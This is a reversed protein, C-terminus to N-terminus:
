TEVLRLLNGSIFKVKLSSFKLKLGRSPEMHLLCFNWPHNNLLQSKGFHVQRSLFIIEDDFIKNKIFKGNKRFLSRFTSEIKFVIKKSKQTSLAPDNDIRGM